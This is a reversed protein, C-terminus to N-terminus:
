DGADLGRHVFSFVETTEDTLATDFYTATLSPGANEGGLYARQREYRTQSDIRKYICYRLRGTEMDIILTCGGRFWFDPEEGDPVSFPTQYFDKDLYGPRKQAIEVVADMLFEGEPSVRRVPRISNVEFGFNDLDLGEMIRQKYGRSSEIISKATEKVDHIRSFIADRNGNLNWSQMQNSLDRGLYVQPKLDESTINPGHWRLSEESLSRAERPFIGRRRFAEMFAVRYGLPDHPVVDLDATILARLYDGFTIDVPPLYDLARICITLVQQSTRAAEDALRKVLDPHIAGEPLVGTGGTALRYLDRTRKQYIALFADFVAAVLIAGRQHPETVQEIRAPDPTKGIASRLAGSRGIARGFEKALDALQNDTELRGRTRAIEFQLVEPLSFHQFLAVIDAFAEHFALVDPNSPEILNQNMGDLLAHTTEHVIIDHSLCTFVLGGPLHETPDAPSAQFYGFLLARKEPSYYANAERLGHPYVRLQRVFQGDRAAWQARRGLAVEFNRITRMCVAYVMQQHFQPNGDSSALGDQAIIYPDSLNIPLYYTGAAPDYDIVELYEGCPGPTLLEDHLESAEGPFGYMEEEMVTDEWPIEVKAERIGYTDLSQALSPDISYIRLCRSTPRPIAYPSRAQTQKRRM